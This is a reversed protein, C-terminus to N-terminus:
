TFIFIFYYYNKPVLIGNEHKYTYCHQKVVMCRTGYKWENEKLVNFNEYLVWIDNATKWPDRFILQGYLPTKEVFGVGMVEIQAQSKNNM